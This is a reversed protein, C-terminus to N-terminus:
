PRIRLVAQDKVNKTILAQALVEFYPKKINNIFQWSGSIADKKLKFTRQRIETMGDVRGNM